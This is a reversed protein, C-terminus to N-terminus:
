PTEITFQDSFSNSRCFMYYVSNRTQHKLEITFRSCVDIASCATPIVSFPWCYSHISVHLTSPTSTTLVWSIICDYWKSCFSREISHITSYSHTHTNTHTYTQTSNEQSQRDIGLNMTVHSLCDTTMLTMTRKSFWLINGNCIISSGASASTRFSKTCTRNHTFHLDEQRHHHHRSATTM